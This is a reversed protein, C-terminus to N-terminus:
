SCFPSLLIHDQYMSARTQAQIAVMVLYSWCYGAMDVDCKVKDLDDLMQGQALGGHQRGM